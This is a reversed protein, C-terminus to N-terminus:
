NRCFGRDHFVSLCVCPRVGCSPMSRAQMADRPLFYPRKNTVIHRWVVATTFEASLRVVLTKLQQLSLAVSPIQQECDEDATNVVGSDFLLRVLKKGYHM